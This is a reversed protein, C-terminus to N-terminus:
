ERLRTELWALWARQDYQIDEGTYEQLTALVVPNPTKVAPLVEALPTKRKQRPGSDRPDPILDKVFPANTQVVDVKASDLAGVLMRVMEENPREGEKLPAALGTMLLAEAAETAFRWNLGQRPRRLYELYAPMHERLNEREALGHCAEQRVYPNRDEVSWKVLCADAEKGGLSILPQILSRRFQANKETELLAVIVPVAAPDDIAAVTRRGEEIDGQPRNKDVPFLKRMENLKKRWALVTAQDPKTFSSGRPKEPEGALTAAAGGLLGSQLAALVILTPIPRATVAKGEYRSIAPAKGGRGLPLLVM